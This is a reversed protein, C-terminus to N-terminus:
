KKLAVKVTASLGPRLKDLDPQNPDFKIRVPVRQVIKTFNGTGPEFPLLSFRSGSGPALSDVTGLFEHGSVADVEIRAREGAQIRGTQTEKFNATVYREHLPVLTLLRTGPQVYDGEQVQRNGVVGDIPAVIVAHRQDQQALDLAARAQEVTAEAKQLAAELTARKARTVAESDQSVEHLASFRKVDQDATIAATRYTDAVRVAVFGTAALKEFRKSDATAREAQAKAAIIASDAARVNASALREEANLSVLAAKASAVGARADALEASATSVRADFEEPDIRVLQDGAHVLQNDQVLVQAILGHVQPAVVTSDASVYADDTTQTSAPAVIYLSGGLAAALAVVGVIMTRRTPLAFRKGSKSAAEVPRLEVVEPTQQDPMASASMKVDENITEVNL